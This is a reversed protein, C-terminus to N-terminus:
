CAMTLINLNVEDMAKSFDQQRSEYRAWNDRRLFSTDRFTTQMRLIMRMYTLNHKAFQHGDIYGNNETAEALDLSKEHETGIFLHVIKDKQSNFPAFDPAFKEDDFVIDSESLRGLQVLLMKQVWVLM